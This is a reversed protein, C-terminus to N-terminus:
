SLMSTPNSVTRVRGEVELYARRTFLKTGEKVDCVVLINLLIGLNPITFFLSQYRSEPRPYRWCGSHHVLFKPLQGANQNVGTSLLGSGM